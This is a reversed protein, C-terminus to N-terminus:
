RRQKTAYFNAVGEHPAYACGLPVSYYYFVWHLPTGIQHDLKGQSKKVRSARRRGRFPLLAAYKKTFVTCRRTASSTEKKGIKMSRAPPTKGRSDEFSLWGSMSVCSSSYGRLVMSQTMLTTCPSSARVVWAAIKCMVFVRLVAVLRPIRQAIINEGWRKLERALEYDGSGYARRM